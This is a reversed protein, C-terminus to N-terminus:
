RAQVNGRLLRCLSSIVRAVHSPHSNLLLWVELFAIAFELIASLVSSNLDAQSAFM